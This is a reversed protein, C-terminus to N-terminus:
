GIEPLPVAWIRRFAVRDSHDQLLIPGPADIRDDLAGATPRELTLNNHIVQGNFLVTVRACEGDRPARFVAEFTQWVMAPRAANVLPAALGYVAGCDQPGPAAVGYSDLIQLEYRGQLYVGSNGREQGVAKPKHPCRFELHLYFDRFTQRTHINGSGPVVELFGGEVKWPAPQGDGGVWSDLHKGTFLIVAGAPPTARPAEM